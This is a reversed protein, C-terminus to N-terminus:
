PLSPGGKPGPGFADDRGDCLGQNNNQPHCHNDWRGCCQGTPCQSHVTCTPQAGGGGPPLWTGDPIGGFVVKQEAKSLAKGLNKLNKM